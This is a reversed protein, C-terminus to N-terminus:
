MWAICSLFQKYVDFTTYFVCFHFNLQEAHASTVNKISSSFRAYKTVDKMEFKAFVAKLIHVVACIFCSIQM